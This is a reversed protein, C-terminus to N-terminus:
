GSTVETYIAQYQVDEEDTLARWTTLNALTEDSPNILPNSAVAPDIKELAEGTGKVVPFYQVYVTLPAYNEVDYIFNMWKEAGVQNRTTAPMVMNDSFQIGGTEPVVFGLNPNDLQLQAVDGSYAQAIVVDGSALDAGYDNGTFKRIQENDVQEKVADAAEQVAEETAEAPSNGQWLMIQGLGDRLESLMTVRGKWKPDFLDDIGKIEGVEEKNYALGTMGSFWPLSYTRDPDFEVNSLSEILQSKNPVNSADIEALWGLNILRAVLFDTVIFLDAGIDQGKSLPESIKAFYEENDNVDETYAVSIGSQKEFNPITNEDIYLPWNSIRLKNGGAEGSSSSDSSESSCAALFAPTVALGGMAVASRGLFGRRSLRRAELQQLTLRILQDRDAAM